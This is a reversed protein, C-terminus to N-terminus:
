PLAFFCVLALPFVHHTIVGVEGVMVVLGDIAM